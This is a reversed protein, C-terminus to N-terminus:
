PRPRPPPAHALRRLAARLRAHADFARVFDSERQGGKARVVDVLKRREIPSWRGVGPLMGIVPAWRSWSERESASWSEDPGAGLLRQAESACREAAERDTNFREALFRGAHLGVNALPLEGLVDPRRRGLDLHLNARALRRLVALSSRHAPDRRMRALEHRMLRIAARERPQFGMKQYFWWAGSELAEDNGEGLQYPVITFADCGYLWRTMALVRAYVAGAEAGRWTDFVNYAIEASGFLAATLVYGIPVGNKLTLYGYVAELLLRRDPKTGICAFELGDGFDVVRVDLPDGNTFAYLDRSRTVMAARALDILRQGERASVAHVRRPRLCTWQAAGPREHSLARKQAHVGSRKWRAATRSPTDPGPELILPPDLQDYLTERAPESMPLRRFRRVLFAADTEARSKLWELWERMPMDYEDLAPVQAPHVLHPLWPELADADFRPWDIRVRDPWREVLWDATPSFFRFRTVTGAIGSDELAGAHRVLDPRRAFGALMREVRRLVRRDDPYARSFCLLEHLRLVDRARPLEGRELARLLELKREAVGHGFTHVLAVAQDLLSTPTAPRAPTRHGPTRHRPM